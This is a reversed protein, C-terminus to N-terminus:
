VYGGGPGHRKAGMEGGTVQQRNRQLRRDGPLPDNTEGVRRADLGAAAVAENWSGYIKYVTSMGPLAPDGSSDATGPAVGGHVEAWQRFAAEIDARSWRRKDRNVFDTRPELGAREIAANWSGFRAQITARAAGIQDSVAPTQGGHDAAGTM